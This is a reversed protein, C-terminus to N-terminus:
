ILMVLVSRNLSYSFTLSLRSQIWRAWSLHRARTFVTIFIRTRYFVALKKDLRPVTLQITTMGSHKFILTSLHVSKSM